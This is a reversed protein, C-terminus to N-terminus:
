RANTTSMDEIRVIIIIITTTKMCFFYNNNEVGPRVTPNTSTSRIFLAEILNREFCIDPRM